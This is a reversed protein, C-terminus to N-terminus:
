RCGSHGADVIDDTVDAQRTFGNGAPAQVEHVDVDRHAIQQVDHSLLRTLEAAPLLEGTQRPQVPLAPEAMDCFHGNTVYKLRNTM